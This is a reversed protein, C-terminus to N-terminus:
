KSYNEMLVILRENEQLTGVTVRLCNPLGPLYRVSIGNKLLYKWMSTADDNFKVLLFNADSPFVKECIPLKELRQILYARLSVCDKIWSNILDLQEIAKLAIELSPQAITYSSGVIKLVEVIAPNAFAMGIRLGALGWAKSLTQVVILNPFESLSALLSHQKSFNIYAEDVILIGDFNHLLIEIDNFSFSNGTPNNPSCLLIIKTFNDISSAIAEIDLQFDDTLDVKKVKINQWQALKEYLPSSPTCVIINDDVPECFISLVHALVAESGNSVFIQSADVKKINAISQIFNDQLFNTYRNYKVEGPSGFANENAALSILKQSETEPSQSDHPRIAIKKIHDRLLHEFM